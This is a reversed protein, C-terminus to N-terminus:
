NLKLKIKKIYHFNEIIETNFYDISIRSYGSRESSVMNVLLSM